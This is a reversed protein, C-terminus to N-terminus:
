GTSGDREEIVTDEEMDWSGFGVWKAFTCGKWEGGCVVLGAWEFRELEEEISVGFGEGLRQESALGAGEVFRPQFLWELSGYEAGADVGGVEWAM